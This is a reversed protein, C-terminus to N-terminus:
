RTAEETRGAKRKKATSLTTPTTFDIGGGGGGGGGGSNNNRNRPPLPPPADNDRMVDLLFRLFRSFVITFIIYSSLFLLLMWVDKSFFHLFFQDIISVVSM